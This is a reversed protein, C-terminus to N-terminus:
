CFSLTEASVREVPAEAPAIPGGGLFEEPDSIPKHPLRGARAEKRGRNRLWRQRAAQRSIGRASGTAGFSAGNTLALEVTRDIRGELADALLAYVHLLELAGARRSETTGIGDYLDEPDSIFESTAGSAYSWAIKRLQVDLVKRLGPDAQRTRPM